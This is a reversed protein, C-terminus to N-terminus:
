YKKKNKKRQNKGYQNKNHQSSPARYIGLNLQNVNLSIVGNTYERIDEVIRADEVSDKNWLIYEKKMQAAILRVLEMREESEPMECAKKLMEEVCRGYHRYRINGKPYSIRHPTPHLTAPDVVEYPYDIDLNFNAMVALHDWLKHRFDPMDRLQPYMNGMVAIITEACRQREARDEITVAHDVMKQVARGYEPMPLNKEQTNYKM